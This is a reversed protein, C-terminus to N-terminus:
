AEEESSRDPGHTWKWYNRAYTFAYCTTGVLMGPQGLALAYVAWLIQTGLGFLWGFAKKQGVIWQGILSIPFLCWQFYSVIFSHM